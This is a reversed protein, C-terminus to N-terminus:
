MAYAGLSTVEDDNFEALADDPRPDNYFTTWKSSSVAALVAGQECVTVCVGRSWATMHCAKKHQVM